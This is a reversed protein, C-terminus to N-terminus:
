TPNEVGYKAVNVAESYSSTKNTAGGAVATGNIYVNGFQLPHVLPFAADGIYPMADLYNAASHAINNFASLMGGHQVFRGVLGDSSYLRIGADAVGHDGAGEIIQGAQIFVHVEQGLLKSFVWDFVGLQGLVIAIETNVIWMGFWGRPLNRWFTSNTGFVTVRADRNVKDVAKEVTDAAAEVAQDSPPANHQISDLIKRIQDKQIDTGRILRRGTVWGVADLANGKYALAANFMVAVKAAEPTGEVSDLYLLVTAADWNWLHAKGEKDTFGKVLMPEIQGAMEESVKKIMIGSRDEPNEKVLYRKEIGALDFSEQNLM